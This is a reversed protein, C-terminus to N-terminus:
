IRFYIETRLAYRSSFSYKLGILAPSQRWDTKYVSLPTALLYTEMLPVSNRIANIFTTTLIDTVADTTKQDFDEYFDLSALQKQVYASTEKILKKESTAKSHHKVIYSKVLPAITTLVASPADKKEIRSMGDSLIRNVENLSTLTADCDVDAYLENGLAQMQTWWDSLRADDIFKDYAKVDADSIIYALEDGSPQKQPTDIYYSIYLYTFYSGFDKETAAECDYLDSKYYQKATHYINKIRTLHSDTTNISDTSVASNNAITVAQSTIKTTGATEDLSVLKASIPLNLSAKKIYFSKERPLLSFLDTVDQGSLGLGELQAVADAIGDLIEDSEGRSVCTGTAAQVYFPQVGILCIVTIVAVLGKGIRGRIM